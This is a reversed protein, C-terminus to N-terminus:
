QDAGPEGPQCRAHRVRKELKRLSARAVPLRAEVEGALERREPAPLADLLDAIRLVAAEVMDRTEGGTEPREAAAALLRERLGM